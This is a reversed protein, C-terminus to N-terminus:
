MGKGTRAIQKLRFYEQMVSKVVPAATSGGHGGHEVLAVVCIEPDSVPAFGIFWAHDRIEYPLDESKIMGFDHGPRCSEPSKGFGLGDGNPKM